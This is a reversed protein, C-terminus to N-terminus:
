QQKMSNKLEQRTKRIDASIAAVEDDARKMIEEVYSNAAKHKDACKKKTDLIIERAKAESAKVIESESVMVKRREEAQRIIEQANRKAEAIIQDRDALIDMAETIEGPLSVEIEDLIDLIRDGSTIPM